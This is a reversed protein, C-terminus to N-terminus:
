PVGCRSGDCEFIGPYGLDACTVVHQLADDYYGCEQICAGDRCVLGQEHCVEALIDDCYFDMCHANGPYRFCWAHDDNFLEGCDALCQYDPPPDRYCHGTAGGQTDAGWCVGVDCELQEDCTCGPGRLDDCRTCIGVIDSANVETLQCTTEGEHDPCYLDPGGDGDPGADETSPTTECLCGPDGVCEPAVPTPDAPKPWYALRGDRISEGIHMAFLAYADPARLAKERHRCAEHDFAEYTALHRIEGLGLHWETKPSELCSNGHAHYQTDLLLTNIGGLDVYRHHMLEHTLTHTVADQPTLATHNVDNFANDSIRIKGINLHSGYWNQSTAECKIEYAHGGIGGFYLSWWLGNIADRIATFRADSYNGFYYRPSSAGNTFDIAEWNEDMGPQGWLFSRYTSGVGALLEMMQTLRWAHHHARIWAEKTMVCEQESCSVLNPVHVEPMNWPIPGFRVFAEEICNTPPAALDFGADVGAVAGAADVVGVYTLDLKTVASTRTVKFTQQLEVSDFARAGIDLVTAGPLVRRNTPTTHNIIRFTRGRVTLDAYGALQIAAADPGLEQAFAATWKTTSGGRFDLQEGDATITGALHGATGVNTPVAYAPDIAATPEICYDDPPPVVASRLMDSSADPTSCACLALVALVPHFRAM